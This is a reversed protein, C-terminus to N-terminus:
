RRWAIGRGPHPGLAGRRLLRMALPDGEAVRIRFEGGEWEGLPVECLDEVARPELGHARRTAGGDGGHPQLPTVYLGAPMAPWGSPSGSRGAGGGRPSLPPDGRGLVLPFPEGPVAAASAGHRVLIVETADPPPSFARQPYRESSLEEEGHRAADDHAERPHAERHHPADDREGEVDDFAQAHRGGEERLRQAQGRQAQADRGGEERGGHPDALEGGRIRSVRPRGRAQAPRRHVGEAAKQSTSAGSRGADVADSLTRAARTRLGRARLMEFLEDKKSGKAM